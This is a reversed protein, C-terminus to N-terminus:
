HVGYKKAMDQAYLEKYSVDKPLHILGATSQKRAEAGAALMREMASTAEYPADDTKTRQLTVIPESRSIVTYSRGAAIDRLVRPLNRRVEQITIFQPSNM